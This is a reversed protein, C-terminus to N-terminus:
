ARRSRGPSVSPACRSLLWYPLVRMRSLCCSSTLSALSRTSIVSSITVSFNSSTRGDDLHALGLQRGLLHDVLLDCASRAAARRLRLLLRLLHQLGRLRLLRHLLLRVLHLLHM